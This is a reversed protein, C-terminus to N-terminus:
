WSHSVDIIAMDQVIDDFASLWGEEECGCDGLSLWLKKFLLVFSFHIM